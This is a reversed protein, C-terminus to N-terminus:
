RNKNGYYDFVDQWTEFLFAKNDPDSLFKDLTFQVYVSLSNYYLEGPLQAIDDLKVFASVPGYKPDTKQVLVMRTNGCEGIIVNYPELCDDIDESKIIDQRDNSIIKLPRGFTKPQEPPTTNM